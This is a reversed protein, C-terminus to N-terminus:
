RPNEETPTARVITGLQRVEASLETIRRAAALQARVPTAQHWRARNRLYAPTHM